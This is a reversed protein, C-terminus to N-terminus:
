RTRITSSASEPGTLMSRWASIEPNGILERCAWREQKSLPKHNSGVSSEYAEWRRNFEKVLRKNDKDWADAEIDTMAEETILELAAVVSMWDEWTHDGHIRRLSELGNEKIRHRQETDSPVGM